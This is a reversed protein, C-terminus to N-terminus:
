PKEIRARVVYQVDMDDRVIGYLVGNRVFPIPSVQLKFPAVVTGLYQGTPSFVDFPQEEADYPTVRAVWLHDEDDIFFSSAAPKHDPMRSPDVKGGQDTFWRLGDLAETKEQSTIGVPNYTKTLARLTDGDATLEFLRYQDTILAWVTGSSSLRWVLRGQFPVGASVRTLGDSVIRFDEREVPDTPLQITGLPTYTRDFRGLAIRFEPEFAVVPAYYQGDRNFGGPWPMIVFGGPVRLGEIYTGASDFVSLRANQPDMVWIRGEPGVDVRVPRKFEGPGSGARGVTRIYEGNPDFVRLESAQSELVWFRGLDDVALSSIRGFNQPGELDLTGIRLEETLRWAGTEPWAGRGENRVEVHGHSLSDIQGEWLADPADDAGGCGAFSCTVLAAGLIGCHRRM